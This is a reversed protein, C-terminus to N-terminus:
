PNLTWDASEQDALVNQVGPIHVASLVVRRSECLQDIECAIRCMSLSKTGGINNIHCVTSMNDIWLRVQQGVLFEEFCHLGM